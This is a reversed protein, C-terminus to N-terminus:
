YVPICLEEVFVDAIHDYLNWAAIDLESELMQQSTTVGINGYMHGSHKGTTNKSIDKNSNIQESEESTDTGNSSASQTSKSQSDEVLANNDYSNVLTDTQGSGNSSENSTSKNATQSSESGKENGSESGNDTWEEFRDYNYIPDYKLQLADHWKQFTRNWKSSVVGIMSKMFFTNSYLVEFDGSRQLICNIVLESDVGEPLVMKSFLQDDFNYMGILTMTSSAM